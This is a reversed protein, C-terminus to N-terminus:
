ETDDALTWGDGVKTITGDAKLRSLLTNMSPGFNTAARIDRTRIGPTETILHIVMEKQTRDGRRSRNAAPSMDRPSFEHEGNLAALASVLRREEEVLDGYVTLQARVEELRTTLVQQAQPTITSM